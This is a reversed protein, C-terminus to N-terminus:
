IGAADMSRMWRNSLFGSVPLGRSFCKTIGGDSAVTDIRALPYGDVGFQDGKELGATTWFTLVGTLAKTNETIAITGVQYDPNDAM